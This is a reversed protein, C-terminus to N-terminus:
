VISGFHPNVYGIPPECTLFWAPLDRHLHSMWPTSHCPMLVALGSVEGLKEERLMNMVEIQAVGHFINLYLYPLVPALLIFYYARKPLRFYQRLCTSLQSAAGQIPAYSRFLPPLAFLLLSPLLPHLFRWESHPSFSLATITFSLARSLTRLPAPRDLTSLSAPLLSTPLLCAIFGKTFWYWIPFLMIPLSQTLHYFPSTAGFNASLGTFLNYHIFTLIPFYLRGTIYYDIGTSAAIVLLSCNDNRPWCGM